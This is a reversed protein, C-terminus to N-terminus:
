IRSLAGLKRILLFIRLIRFIGRIRTLKTLNQDKSLVDVFVLGMTCLTLTIDVINWYDGTLYLCRFAYFHLIIDVVFIALFFIEVFHLPRNTEANTFILDGFAFYFFIVLSYLAILLISSYNYVRSRLLKAIKLRRGKIGLEIM